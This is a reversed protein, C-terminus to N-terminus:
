RKKMELIAKQDRKGIKPQLIEDKMLQLIEAKILQYYKM